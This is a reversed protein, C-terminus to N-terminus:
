VSPGHSTMTSQQNDITSQFVFAGLKLNCAKPNNITEYFAELATVGALAPTERRRSQNGQIGANAPIVFVFSKQSKVLKDNNFFL